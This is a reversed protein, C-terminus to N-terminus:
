NDDKLLSKVTRYFEALHWHQKKKAIEESYMTRAACEIAARAEHSCMQLRERFSRWTKDAQERNKAKRMGFAVRGMSELLARSLHRANFLQKGGLLPRIDSQIREAAASSVPTRSCVILLGDHFVRASEVRGELREALVGPQQGFARECLLHDFYAVPHLRYVHNRINIELREISDALAVNCDGISAYYADFAVIYAPLAIDVLSAYDVRRVDFVLRFYNDEHPADHDIIWRPDRYNLEAQVGRPFLHSLSISISNNTEKIHAPPWRGQAIGWQGDLSKLCSHMCEHIAEIPQKQSSRSRVFVEYKSM